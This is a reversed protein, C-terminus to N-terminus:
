ERGGKEVPAAALGHEELRKGVADYLKVSEELATDKNNSYCHVAWGAGKATREIKINYAFQPAESM